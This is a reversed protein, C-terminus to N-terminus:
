EGFSRAEASHAPLRNIAEAPMDIEPITAGVLIRDPVTGTYHRPLEPMRGASLRLEQAAQLCTAAALAAPTEPPIRFNVV